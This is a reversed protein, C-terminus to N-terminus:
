ISVTRHSHGLSKTFLRVDCQSTKLVIFVYFCYTEHRDSCQIESCPGICCLENFRAYRSWDRQYEEDIQFIQFTLGSASLQSNRTLQYKNSRHDPNVEDSAPRKARKNRASKSFDTFLKLASVRLSAPLFLVTLSKCKIRFVGAVPTQKGPEQVRKDEADGRYFSKRFASNQLCAFRLRFIGIVRKSIALEANWEVAFRSRFAPSVSHPPKHM